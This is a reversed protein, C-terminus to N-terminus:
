SARRLRFAILLICAVGMLMWTEPEPVSPVSGPDVPKLGAADYQSQRELVVAGSVETILQHRAALELARTLAPQERSSALQSIEEKAWLRALHASTKWPEPSAQVAGLAVRERHFSAETSGWRAFLNKLDQELPGTRPVTRFGVYDALEVAMRNAGRGVMVDMVMGPPESSTWWPGTVAPDGMLGLPHPGHVWVLVTGRGPKVLSWARAFAASADQGGAAPLERVRESLAELAAADVKSPPLLEEVGDLSALVALEVGQPFTSLASAVEPLADKMGQSGDLVLIVREPVQVLARRLQQRVAYATPEIMDETWATDAAGKRQVTLVAQPPQLAEDELAALWESVGDKRQEVGGGASTLLPRMSEVRVAHRFDPAIHFNREALTPLLLTAQRGDDRALLPATIGLKIKMPPGKVVPFCQVQVRDKGKYTVLLPDRRTRVVKEYAERVQATGAFAAEREQGDIYLTVRSIVAGPPLVLETRAESQGDRVTEFSMTWELYALAADGDVSGKMESSVLSLGPVRGGVEQGAQDTDENNFRFSGQPRLDEPKPVTNFTRGTVRYYVTRAEELSVSDDWSMVLNGMMSARRPAVYSAALLTQESDLRRLWQLATRQTEASGNVAAHLALRTGTVPAEVALFAMLAVGVGLWPRAVAVGEPHARRLRSRMILDMFFSLLPALPLLGLGLFLIGILGAPVLPLFIVAYVFSVALAVSNIFVATRLLPQTRRSAAILSLLNSAPVLGVLLMHVFTPVPDFMESTCWRQTLEFGLTFAPLAVGFVSVVVTVFTSFKAPSVPQAVAHPPPSAEPPSPEGPPQQRQPDNV